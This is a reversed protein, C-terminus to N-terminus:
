SKAARYAVFNCDYGPTGFIQFTPKCTIEVWDGKKATACRTDNCGYQQNSGQFTLVFKQDVSKSDGSGSTLFRSNSSTVTGSIHQWSHYHYTWPFMGYLTGLFLLVAMGLGGWFLGFQLMGGDYVDGWDRKKAWIALIICGIILLIMLPLTVILGISPNTQGYHIM